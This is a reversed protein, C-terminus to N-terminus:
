GPSGSTYSITAVMRVGGCASGKSASSSSGHAPGRWWGV